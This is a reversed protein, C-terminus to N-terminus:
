LLLRQLKVSPSVAARLSLRACSDPALEGASDMTDVVLELGDLLMLPAWLPPPLASLRPLFLLPPPLFPPPPLCGPELPPLLPDVGGSM